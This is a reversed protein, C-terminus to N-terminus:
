LKKIGKKSKEDHIFLHIKDPDRKIEKVLNAPGIITFGQRNGLLLTTLMSRIKEKFAKQETAAISSIEIGMFKHDIEEMTKKILEAEESSKLKGELMVIKQEKVIKLLKAIKKASDLTALEQYPIFQITLM